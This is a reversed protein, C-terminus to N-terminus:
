SLTFHGITRPPFTSFQHFKAHGFQFFQFDGMWSKREVFSLRCAVSWRLVRCWSTEACTSSRPLLGPPLIHPVFQQLHVLRVLRVLPWEEIDDKLTCLEQLLSLKRTWELAQYLWIHGAKSLCDKRVSACKGDTYWLLDCLEPGGRITKFSFHGDCCSTEMRLVFYAIFENFGIAHLHCAFPMCIAHLHCAFPMCIAHLHCAFPMCLTIQISDMASAPDQMTIYTTAKCRTMIWMRGSM